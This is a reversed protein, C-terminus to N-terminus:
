GVPFLVFILLGWTAHSVLPALLNRRWAYLSGWALGATLAALVLPLNLTCLHVLAYLGSTVLLGGVAGLRAAAVSQLYGRWFIEEAPGTVVFLLAGIAWLPLSGRPAYVLSIDAAARALIATLIAKGLVFVGYLLAASALGLALDAVRLRVLGRRRGGMGALASAALLSSAVAIKAWFNGARVVFIFVWFVSACFVLVAPAALNPPAESSGSM